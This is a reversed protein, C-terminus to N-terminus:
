STGRRVPLAVPERPANSLPRCQRRGIRARYCLDNADASTFYYAALAVAVHNADLPDPVRDLREAALASRVLADREARALATFARGHRERAARDLAALQERWRSVPSAGTYDLRPSGYPHVVEAGERYGALWVTFGRSVREIGDPGLESPLMVEGLKAVTNADLSQSAATRRDATITAAHSRRRGWGTAAALGAVWALFSRRTLRM